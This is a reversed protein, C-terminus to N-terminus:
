KSKHIKLINEAFIILQSITANNKMTNALRSIIQINGKVYGKSSDIRDISFYNPSNREDPNTLLKVGLYPCYTSIIIDDITINSNKNGCKEKIRYWLIYEPIVLHCYEKIIKKIPIKNDIKDIIEKQINNLDDGVPPLLGITRLEYIIRSKRLGDKKLEKNKKNLKFNEYYSFDNNSIQELILKQEDNPCIDLKPLINNNILYKRVRTRKKQLKVKEKNKNRWNNITTKM